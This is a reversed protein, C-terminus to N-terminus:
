RWLEVHHEDDNNRGADRNFVPETEKYNSNIKQDLDRWVEQMSEMKESRLKIDEPSMKDKHQDMEDQMKDMLMELNSM